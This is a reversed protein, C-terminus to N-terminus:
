IRDSTHVKFIEDLYYPHQYRIIYARGTPTYHIPTTRIGQLGNGYDFASTISDGTVDDLVVLGGYTNNAHVGTITHKM